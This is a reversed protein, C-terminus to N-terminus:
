QNNMEALMEEQTLEGSAFKRMLDALRANEANKKAATERETPQMHAKVDFVPTLDPSVQTDRKANNFFKTSEGNIKNASRRTKEAIQRRIERDALTQIEENTLKDANVVSVRCNIAKCKYEIQYEKPMSTQNNM